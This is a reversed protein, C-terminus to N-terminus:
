PSSGAARYNQEGWQFVQESLTNVSNTMRDTEINLVTNSGEAARILRNHDERLNPLGEPAVPSGRVRAALFYLTKDLDYSFTQFAEGAQEVAGPELGAELAMVSHIFRHSSALMSNLALLQGESGTPEARLRDVSAEVNSRARRLNLRLRGLRGPDASQPNLYVRSVGQFYLRYAEITAALATPAHTSERTPWIWYITLALIGGITTDEARAAIVDRPPQGALAFLFVILASIATVLIGYNARGVSRQIFALVGVWVVDVPAAPSLLHFLLTAVILGAFTGALRLVGRSFTASFDPKLVMAVTMSLWYSRPLSLSRAIIDGLAICIALRLAHRFAPSGLSLNARLIALRGGLRLRWPMRAEREMLAGEGKPTTNRALELAARLQGALADMQHRAQSVLPNATGDEAHEESHRLTEGSHYADDGGGWLCRGVASLSCAADALFKEIAVPASEIGTERRIRALWRHLALLSLRIREAQSVLLFLRAAEAGHDGSLSSLAEHAQISERSSSPTSDANAAARATQSLASYFDGIVRREPLHGRIPWLAISLATQLLGGGLAILGAGAALTPSMTRASYVLFVVLSVIAIDAPATGLCVALGAAFTWLAGLVAKAILYQGALPGTFVAAGALVSSALMRFGRSRYSDEGDAPAVNLAGTAAVLGSGTYGLAMGVALPLVIGLANRAGMWLNIRKRDFQTVTRWFTARASM